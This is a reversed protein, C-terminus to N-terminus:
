RAEGFIRFLNRGAEKAQYMAADAKYLLAAADSGDGPFLAIGVSASIRAVESELVFPQALAEVVKQAVLAADERRGLPALVIAFEDGSLRGVTDGARVCAKLRHAVQVLLRDGAAHGLTDNVAKFHDLDVFLVGLCWASRQGVTLTQEFRDLFLTRNPLGTLADFQALLTLREETRRRDMATALTNALSQLYSAVDPTLRRQGRTYAGLIGYTGGVGTIPVDVGSHIGHARVLACPVFRLDGGFDEVVVPAVADLVHRNHSPPALERDISGVWGPAWGTGATLLLQQGGPDLLHLRCFDVELGESVAAAAREMLVEVGVNALASQGFAAILSQQQAHRRIIAETHKNRTIDRVVNVAIRRGAIVAGRRRIEIPIRQGDRHKLWIEAWQETSADTDLAQYQRRLADMDVNPAMDPIQLALFEERSYGLVRCGTENVDIFRMTECDVVHIGDATADIAARFGRMDEDRQRQATIDLAIGRYGAFAGHEDFVPEGCLRVWCAGGNAGGRCLDLDRFAQQRLLLARHPAWDAPSLKLAPADRGCFHRLQLQADLEWYGCGAQEALYALRVDDPASVASAPSRNM